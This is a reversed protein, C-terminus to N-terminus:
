PTRERCETEVASAEIEFKNGAYGHVQHEKLYAALFAAEGARRALWPWWRAWAPAMRKMQEVHVGEHARLCADDEGSFYVM